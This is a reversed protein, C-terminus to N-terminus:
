LRPEMKKFVDECTQLTYEIQKETHSASVYNYATRKLLIGNKLTERMILKELTESNFRIYFLQPIGSLEARINYRTILERMGNMFISGLKEIKKDLKKQKLLNITTIASVISLAESAYTSSIWTHEFCNMIDKGGCVAALPMGNAMGKGLVTLDPTVGYQEQAGGLGLRFGTKIEDFVLPIKKELTYRRIERLFTIQPAGDIMPEMIVCALDNKNQNALREFSAISNFHFSFSLRKLEEPVGQGLYFWDHWGMYGCTLIKKRGTFVRALRIAASTAEAGTKFFRVKEASPVCDIILKALEIEKEYALSTLVGKKLQQVIAREIAPINYGLLVSGLAMVYDIYKNGDIDTIVAGQASKFYLPAEGPELNGYLVSHRKSQTQTECPILEVAKKYLNLSKSHKM